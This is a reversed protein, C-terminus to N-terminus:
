VFPIIIIQKNLSYRNTQLLKRELKVSWNECKEEEVIFAYERPIGLNGGSGVKVCSTYQQKFIFGLVSLRGIPCTTVFSLLSAMSQQRPQCHLHTHSFACISRRAFKKRVQVRLTRRNPCIHYIFETKCDTAFLNEWHTIVRRAPM